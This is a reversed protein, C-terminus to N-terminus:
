EFTVTVVKGPLKDEAKKKLEDIKDDPVMATVSAYRGGFTSTSQHIQISRLCQEIVSRDIPYVQQKMSDQPMQVTFTIRSNM